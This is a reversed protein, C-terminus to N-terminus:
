FAYKYENRFHKSLLKEDIKKLITSHPHESHHKQKIFKKEFLSMHETANCDAIGTLERADAKSSILLKRRPETKQSLSSLIRKSIHKNNAKKQTEDDLSKRRNNDSDLSKSHFTAQHKSGNTM